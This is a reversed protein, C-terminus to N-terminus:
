AVADTGTPLSVTLSGTGPSRLPDVLEWKSPYLQGVIKGTLSNVSYFRM